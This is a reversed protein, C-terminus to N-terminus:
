AVSFCPSPEKASRARRSESSVSLSSTRSTAAKTSAAPPRENRTGRHAPERQDGPAAPQRREDGLGRGARQHALHLAHDRLGLSLPEVPADLPEARQEVAQAPAAHVLHAQAAREM